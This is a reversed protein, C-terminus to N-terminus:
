RPFRKVKVTTNESTNIAESLPADDPLMDDTLMDAQNPLGGWMGKSQFKASVEKIENKAYDIINHTKEGMNNTYRESSALGEELLMKNVNQIKEKDLYVEVIDRDYKDKGLLTLYVLKTGIKEKLFKTAEKAWPAGREPTDIGALRFTKKENNHMGIFTDGDKPFLVYCSDQPAKPTSGKNSAFDKKPFQPKNEKTYSNNFKNGPSFKEQKKDQFFEKQENTNNQAEIKEDKSGLLKNLISYIHM